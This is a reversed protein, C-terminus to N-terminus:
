IATFTVTWTYAVNISSTKNITSHTVRAFLRVDETFLGAEKLAHGNAASSGLYYVLQIQASSDADILTMTSAHVPNGLGTDSPTVATNDTGVGFISLATDYDAGALADRLINLGSTTVLNHKNQTELLEGTQDDRVDIRVNVGIQLAANLDMSDTYCM